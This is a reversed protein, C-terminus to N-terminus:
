TGLPATSRRAHRETGSNWFPHFGVKASASTPAKPRSTTGSSNRCDISRPKRESPTRKPYTAVNHAILPKPSIAVDRAVRVATTRSPVVDSRPSATSLSRITRCMRSRESWCCPSCRRPTSTALAVLSTSDSDSNKEHDAIAQIVLATTMNTTPIAMIIMSQRRARIVNTTVEGNTGNMLIM